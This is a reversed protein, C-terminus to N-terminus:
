REEVLIADTNSSRHRISKLPQYENSELFKKLHDMTPFEILVIYNPKWGGELAEAKRGRVLYRGEFKELVAPMKESYGEFVEPNTVELNGILYAAM